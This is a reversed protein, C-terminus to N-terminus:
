SFSITMSELHHANDYLLRLKKQALPDRDDFVRLFNVWRQELHAFLVVLEEVSEAKNLPLADHLAIYRADTIGWTERAFDILYWFSDDVLHHLQFKDACIEVFARVIEVSETGDFKWLRFCTWRNGLRRKEKADKPLSRSLAWMPLGDDRKPTIRCDLANLALQLTSEPFPVPYEITEGAPHSSAAAADEAGKLTDCLQIFSDPIPLRSADNSLLFRSTRPVPYKEAATESRSSAPEMLPEGASSLYYKSASSHIANLAFFPRSKVNRFRSAKSGKLGIRFSLESVVRHPNLRM